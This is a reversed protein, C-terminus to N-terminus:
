RGKKKKRKKRKIQESRKPTFKPNPVNPTTGLVYLEYKDFSNRRM